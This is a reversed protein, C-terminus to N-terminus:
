STTSETIRPSNDEELSIHDIARMYTERKELDALINSKKM